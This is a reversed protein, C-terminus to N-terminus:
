GAGLRGYFMNRDTRVDYGFEALTSCLRPRDDSGGEPSGDIAIKVPRVDGMGRLIALEWGEAEIKAFTPQIDLDRCMQALTIIEVDYEATVSGEDIHGSFSSDVCTSSEQFRASGSEAALGVSHVTVDRREVNRTLCRRNTRSPEVAIVRAGAKVAARSFAGVFAGCDLVTDGPEVEVFGPLQYKAGMCIEPGIAVQFAWQLLREQAIPFYWADSGSQYQWLGDVESLNVGRGITSQAIQSFEDLSMAPRLPLGLRRRVRSVLRGKLTDWNYAVKLLHDYAAAEKPPFRIEPTFNMPM